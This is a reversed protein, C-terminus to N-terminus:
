YNSHGGNSHNGHNGHNGHNAHSGNCIQTNIAWQSLHWGRIYWSQHWATPRWSWHGNVNSQNATGARTWSLHGNRRYWSGHGQNAHSVGSCHAAWSVEWVSAWLLIASGVGIGLADKKAIKGSEDTLFNKMKKKVKPINLKKKLSM